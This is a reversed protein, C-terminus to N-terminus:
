IKMSYLIAIMAVRKMLETNYVTPDLSLRSHKKPWIIMRDTKGGISGMYNEVM